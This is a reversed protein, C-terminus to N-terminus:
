LQDQVARLVARLQGELAAADGDNHLTWDFALGQDLGCESEADDVGAVFAWGRSTRAEESAQVRVTRVAPGYAARFWAVDSPRRTDSVVWVPQVAGRVAARCFFGPDARRREEGWRIMDQRYREKYDGAGLLQPFDLGHEQAYQEKLPASLRLVACVDPGLRSRLQEAVFDKGSKRKGSLLLVLRPAGAM